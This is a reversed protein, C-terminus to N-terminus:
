CNCRNCKYCSVHAVDYSGAAVEFVAEGHETKNWCQLGPNPVSSDFEFEVGSCRNNKSSLKSSVIQEGEKGRPAVQISYCYYILIGRHASEVSPQRAQVRHM